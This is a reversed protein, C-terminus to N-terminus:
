SLSVPPARPRGPPYSHPTHVASYLLLRNACHLEFPQSDIHGLDSVQGTESIACLACVEDEHEDLHLHAVDITQGFCLALAGLLVWQHLSYRFRPRAHTM